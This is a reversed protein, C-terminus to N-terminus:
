ITTLLLGPNNFYLRTTGTGAGEVLRRQVERQVPQRVPVQEQTPVPLQVELEPMPAEQQQEQVQELELM